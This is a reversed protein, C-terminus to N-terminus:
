YVSNADIYDVVKTPLLHKCYKKQALRIRIESSSIDMNRTPTVGKEIAENVTKDCNLIVGQGRTGVLLDVKKIIDKARHWKHFDQINDSGLILYYKADSDCALLEDITDITYSPPPRHLENELIEFKPIDELALKLMELRHHDSAQIQQSKFPNLAAPCFYIKTLAHRELMEIALNIHGLHIPNFSGGYLAIKPTM